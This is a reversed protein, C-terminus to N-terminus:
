RADDWGDPAGETRLWAEVLPAPDFGTETAVTDLLDQMLADQGVRARTFTGLAADLAEAGVADAVDRWFYAGKIYVIRGFLDDELVDIDGCGTPWVIRDRNLPGAGLMTDLEDRYGAWVADGAAPSVAAALTRAALYTATGESLVFDEWCRLRVGDGFWAHAAEHAHTPPDGMAPRSVHWFPHHEMGGFAGAGWDVQVPGTTDGFPYPGLTEELWDVVAVLDATGMAAADADAAPVHQIVTTGGATVGLETRVTDGTAWAVQYAPAPSISDAAAVTVGGAGSVQVGFRAGDAPDPRCPFLNGCWYPWILTSGTDMLGEFRAGVSFGYSVEITSDGAERPLAVDLRGDAIEWTLDPGLTVSEVDLGSVDFSASPETGAAVVLTATGHLSDPDSLDVDLDTSLLDSAWNESPTNPPLPEASPCGLLLALLPLLPRVGPDECASPFRAHRAVAARATDAPHGSRAPQDDPAAAAPDVRSLM